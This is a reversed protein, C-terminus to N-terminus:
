LSNSYFTDFPEFNGHSLIGIVFNEFIWKKEHKLNM